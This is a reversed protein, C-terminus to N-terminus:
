TLAEEMMRLNADLWEVLRRGDAGLGDAHPPTLLHDLM